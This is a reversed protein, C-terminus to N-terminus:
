KILIFEVRRNKWRNELDSHPVVPNYGGQGLTTIREAKIGKSILADRIVEARKVSLPLLKTKEEELWKKKDDWFVRVANGEINIKYGSYKKLIESLRDITQLNKKLLEPEVSTFDPTNPTFYISSISIRLKNGDKMVLIDIPLTTKSIVTNGVSDRATLLLLYDSASQVLEGSDSLGDWIFQNNKFDAVSLTKFSHGQPDQIEGKITFNNFNDNIDVSITLKDDIGDSDPSFYQPTIKVKVEPATTDLLFSEKSMAKAINGKLYSIEIEAKYEGDPLPTNGTYGFWTLKQPLEREGSFSSVVEDKKSLITINWNKIGASVSAKLELDIYDEFGDNNPSFTKKNPTITAFTETRDIVFPGILYSESNGAEDISKLQYLYKGDPVPNNNQDYGDWEFSLARENWEKKLVVSKNESIIEGTWLAEISTTQNITLTDQNGDGEPSFIDFDTSLVSEPKTIDLIIRNSIAEANTGNIFKGKLHAYYIGEELYVGDRNKGDFVLNQPTVIKKFPYSSVVEGSSNKIELIGDIVEIGETTSNVELTITDKIGDGNPSLYYDGNTFFLKPETRDIIIKDITGSYYNGALDTSELKYSFEGDSIKNRNKDLGNLEVNETIGPWRYNVVSKGTSDILSGTWLEESSSEQFITLTTLGNKTNPSFTSFPINIEAYPPTNDVIVKYPSSIGKNGEGDWLEVYILYQGDAVFEGNSSKGNWKIIEPPVVYQPVAFLPKKKKSDYLNGTLKEFVTQKYVSEVRVRYGILNLGKIYPVTVKEEFTDKIGDSNKPSIYFVRNESLEVPIIGKFTSCSWFLLMLSSIFLLKKM